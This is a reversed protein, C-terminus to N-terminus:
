GIAICMFTVIKVFDGLGKLCNFSLWGMKMFALSVRCYLASKCCSSRVLTSTM